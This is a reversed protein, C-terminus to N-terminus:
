LRRLLRGVKTFIKERASKRTALHAAGLAAESVVITKGIIVPVNTPPSQEDQEDILGTQVPGPSVM